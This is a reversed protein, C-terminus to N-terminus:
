PSVRRFLHLFKTDLPVSEVAATGPPECRDRTVIYDHADDGRDLAIHYYRYFYGHLSWDKWMSACITVASDAPVVTAILKVDHITDVNRGVTGVRSASYGLVSVLLLVATAAFTRFRWARPDIREVLHSVVPAVMLAFGSAYLAFSPVLYFGMQRPSVILPLSGAAGVAICLLATRFTPTKVIPVHWRFRNIGLLLACVGIVPALETVIKIWIGFRNSVSGRAGDLSPGLQVALYSSINEFAHRDILVVAVMATVMVVLMITSLAATRFSIDRRVLSALGLLSIPFLAVPGKTFVGAAILAAAIRWHWLRRPSTIGHLLAVCAGTTFISLTNELMNNSYCWSVQPTVAWFFVALWALPRLGANSETVRRWLLVIMAGTMVATCLSYLNEVFLRDGFVRFFLSQIGFVLPPHDAFFDPTLTPTLIPKWFIGIGEALNRSMVSYLLGDLFMGEDVLRPLTLALFVASTLLWFSLHRGPLRANVGANYLM